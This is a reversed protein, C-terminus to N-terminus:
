YWIGTTKKEVFLATKTEQFSLEPYEHIQRRIAIIEELIAKAQTKIEQNDM